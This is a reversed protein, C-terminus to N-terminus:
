RASSPLAPGPASSESRTHTDAPSGSGAPMDSAQNSRVPMRMMSPMPEVSISCMKMADRGSSARAPDVPM